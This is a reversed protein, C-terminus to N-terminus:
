VRRATDAAREALSPEANPESASGGASRESERFADAGCVSGRLEHGDWEPEAGPCGRVDGGCAICRVNPEIAKRDASETSDQEGSATGKAKGSGVGSIRGDRPGAPGPNNPM